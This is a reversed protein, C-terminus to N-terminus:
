GDRRDLAHVLGLGESGAAAVGAGVADVPGVVGKFSGEVYLCVERVDMLTGQTDPSEGVAGCELAM